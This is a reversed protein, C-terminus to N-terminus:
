EAIVPKSDDLAYLQTSGFFHCDFSIDDQGMEIQWRGFPDVRLEHLFHPVGGRFRVLAKIILLSINSAVRQM